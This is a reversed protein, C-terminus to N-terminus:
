LLLVGLLASTHVNHLNVLGKAVIFGLHQDSFVATVGGQLLVDLFLAPELLLLGDIDKLLYKEAQDLEMPVTDDVFVKFGSVYENM